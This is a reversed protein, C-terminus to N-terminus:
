RAKAVVAYRMVRFREFGSFLVFALRNVVRFVLGRLRLSLRPSVLQLVAVPLTGSEIVHFGAAVVEDHLEEESFFYQFFVQGPDSRYMIETSSRQAPSDIPVSVIAVGGPKLVRLMERLAGGPGAEDHEIVGWSIIGDFVGDSFPMRQIAACTWESNPYTGRLREILESSFDCGHAEYGADRLFMVWEGFGCGADLIKAGPKLYRQILFWEKSKRFAATQRPRLRKSEAFTTAWMEPTSATETSGSAGRTDKYM